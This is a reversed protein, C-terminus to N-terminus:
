SHFLFDLIWISGHRSIKIGVRRRKQRRKRRGRGRGGGGKKGVRREGWQRESEDERKERREEKEWKERHCAISLIAVLLKLRLAM